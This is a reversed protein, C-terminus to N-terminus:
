RRSIRGDAAIEDTPSAGPEERAPSAPKQSRVTVIRSREPDLAKQKQGRPCPQDTYDIHGDAVCKHMRAAVPQAPELPVDMWDPQKEAVAKPAEIRDLLPPRGHVLWFLSGVGALALTFFVVLVRM